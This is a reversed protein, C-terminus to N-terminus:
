DPFDPYVQGRVPTEPYDDSAGRVYSWPFADIVTDGNCDLYPCLQLDNIERFEGVQYCRACHLCWMWTGPEDGYLETRHIETM